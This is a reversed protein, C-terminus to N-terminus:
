GWSWPVPFWRFNRGDRGIHGIGPFSWHYGLCPIRQDAAVGFIRRRTRATHGPDNDFGFPWDPEATMLIEHNAADALILLREGASEVRLGIHGPTHGHLEITEVGPALRTAADITKLRGDLQGFITNITALMGAQPHEAAQMAELQEASKSWFALEPEAILVEANPFVSAGRADTLGYLHDPHAHTIVVRDIDGPAYGAAHLSNALWGATEGARVGYGADVLIREAGTDILSLNLQADIFEPDRYHSELVAAVEEASAEEKGFTPHARFRLYGDTLVLVQHNGLPYRYYLGGQPGATPAKAGGPATAATAAGTIGGFLAATGMSKLADRRNM